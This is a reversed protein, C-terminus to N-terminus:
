RGKISKIIQPVGNKVQVVCVSTGGVNTEDYSYTTAVGVVDKTSALAERMAKKDTSGAKKFAEAIVTMADYAMASTFESNLKYKAKYNTAFEQTHPLPNTPVYDAISYVGEANEKALDLAVKTVYSNSGVVPLNLDLSRMQKMILGAEVLQSWALVGDAGSAKIKALQPTFDKDGGNYTEVLIPPVKLDELTKTAVAAAGSAFNDTDHLIAVKKLHLVKAAFNAIAVASIADATRNQFMWPNKQKAIDNSSGLVLTPIEAKKISPSMALDMTSYIPGIIVDVGSNVLKNFANVSGADSGNDDEFLVSLKKGNIGGKDNIESLALNAGNRSYQGTLAREGTLSTVIGIKLEQAYATSTVQESAFCGLIAVVSVSLIKKVSTKMM